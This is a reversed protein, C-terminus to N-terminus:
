HGCRDVIFEINKITLTRNKCVSVRLIFAYFMIIENDSKQSQCNLVVLILVMAYQM